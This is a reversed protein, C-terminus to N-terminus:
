NCTFRARADRLLPQYEPNASVLQEAVYQLDQESWSTAESEPVYAALALAACFRRQSIAHNDRLVPRLRETLQSAFARLQRRIPLLYAIKGM